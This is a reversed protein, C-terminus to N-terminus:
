LIDVGQSRKVAGVDDGLSIIQGDYNKWRRILSLEVSWRKMMGTQRDLIIDDVWWQSGVPFESYEVASDGGPVGLHDATNSTVRLIDNAIVTKWSEYYIQQDAANTTGPPFVGQFKVIPGEAGMPIYYAMDGPLPIYTKKARTNRTNRKSFLPPLETTDEQVEQLVTNGVKTITTYGRIFVVGM